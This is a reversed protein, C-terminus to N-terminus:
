TMRPLCRESLGSLRGSGSCPSALPAFGLLDHDSGTSLDRGYWDLAVCITSLRLFNGLYSWLLVSPLVIAAVWFSRRNLVLLAIAVAALAYLSGVGSCAEEVFLQKGRVTIINGNRLHPVELFDMAWSCAEASKQQLTQILAQDLNLPLPITIALLSTWAVVRSWPTEGFRGLAWGCFLMVAAVHVLWPSYFYVGSGFLGIAAVVLTVGTRLRWASNTLPQKWSRISIYGVIVLMLPAFQMHRWEWVQIGEVCLLADDGSGACLLRVSGM